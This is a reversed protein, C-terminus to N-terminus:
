NVMEPDISEELTDPDEVPEEATKPANAIAEAKAEAKATEEDLYIDRWDRIMQELSRNIGCTGREMKSVLEQSVGLLKAFEHQSWNNSKRFERIEAGDILEPRSQRIEEYQSIKPDTKYSKNAPPQIVIWSAM